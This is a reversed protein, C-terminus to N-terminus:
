ITRANYLTILISFFYTQLDFTRISTDCDEKNTVIKTCNFLMELFQVFDACFSLINGVEYFDLVKKFALTNIFIVFVYAM